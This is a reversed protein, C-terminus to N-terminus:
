RSAVAHQAPNARNTRRHDAADPHESLSGGPSCCRSWCRRTLSPSMTRVRDGRLSACRRAAKPTLSGTRLREHVTPDPFRARHHPRPDWHRAIRVAPGRLPTGGTAAHGGERGDPARADQACPRSVVGRVRPDRSSDLGSPRGTYSNDFPPPPKWPEMAGALDCDLVELAHWACFWPASFRQMLEDQVAPDTDVAGDPGVLSGWWGDLRPVPWMSGEWLEDPCDQVAAQM